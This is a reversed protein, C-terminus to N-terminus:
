VLWSFDVMLEPRHNKPTAAAAPSVCKVTKKRIACKKGKTKGSIALKKAKQTAKETLKMPCLFRLKLSVVLEMWCLKRRNTIVDMAPNIQLSTTKLRAMRM